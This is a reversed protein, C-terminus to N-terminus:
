MGSFGSHQFTVTDVLLSKLNAEPCMQVKQLQKKSKKPFLIWILYLNNKTTIM